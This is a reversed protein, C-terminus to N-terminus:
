RKAGNPVQGSHVDVKIENDVGIRIHDTVDVYFHSYGYVHGGLIEGNVSVNSDMYVGEFELVLKKGAYREEGFLNRTYVYDGSPYFGTYSGNKLKPIRRRHIMADHPLDVAKASSEEGKLWYTWGFNLNEKRM